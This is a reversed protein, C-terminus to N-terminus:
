NIGRGRGRWAQGLRPLPDQSSIKYGPGPPDGSIRPVWDPAALIQVDTRTPPGSTPVPSRPHGRPRARPSLLRRAAPANFVATRPAGRAGPSRVCGGRPAQAGRRAGEWPQPARIPNLSLGGAGLSARFARMKSTAGGPAVPPARPFPLLGNVGVRARGRWVRRACVRKPAPAGRGSVRERGTAPHTVEASRRPPRPKRGAPM